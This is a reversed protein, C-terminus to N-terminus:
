PGACVSQNYNLRLETCVGVASLAPSCFAYELNDLFYAKRKRVARKLQEKDVEMQARQQWGASQVSKRVRTLAPLAHFCGSTEFKCCSMGAPSM